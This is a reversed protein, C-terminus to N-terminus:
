NEMLHLLEKVTDKLYYAYSERVAAPLRETTLELNFLGDFGTAALGKMADAWDIRGHFPPLHSDYKGYNDNIHLYKLRHGICTLAESQKVGILNGHGFDWCVGVGLADALTCLDEPRSCYRTVPYGYSVLANNEVVISFGVKNAYEVVPALLTMANEFEKKEDYDDLQVMANDTHVVGYRIGLKKSIDIARCIAQVLTGDSVYFPMHANEFRIGIEQSYELIKEVYFDAENEIMPFVNARLEIADFGVKKMFLMGERLHKEANDYSPAHLNFCSSIRLKNKM